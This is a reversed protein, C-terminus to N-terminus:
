KEGPLIREGDLWSTYVPEAISIEAKANTIERMKAAFPEEEGLPTLVKLTIDEAYISEEIICGYGLIEYQLKGLLTYAAKIILERYPRMELIGAAEVGERASRGYARVLGGTGLLIGGFYRTVVVATNHLELNRLLDLIPMGATGSPEGDDSQKEQVQGLGVRFAFVNHTAKYHEKKVAAIFELAAEQSEVPAVHAIFQSKKEFIEAQTAKLITKYTQM